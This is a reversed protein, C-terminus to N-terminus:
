FSKESKNRPSEEEARRQYDPQLTWGTAPPRHPETRYVAQFAALLDEKKFTGVSSDKLAAAYLKKFGRLQGRQNLIWEALVVAPDLGGNSTQQEFSQDKPPGPKAANGFWERLM